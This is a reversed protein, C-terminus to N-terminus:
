SRSLIGRLYIHWIRKGRSALPFSYKFLVWQMATSQILGFFLFAAGDLDLSRDFTGDAIGKKLIVKIGSLYKAVIRKLKASFRSKGFCLEDSIIFRPIGRHKDLFEIHKFFISELSKLPPANRRNVEEILNGLDLGVESIIAAKVADKDKFHRYVNSDSIGVRKSIASITLGKVGKESIIRLAADTIQAQRVDTKLKTRGM